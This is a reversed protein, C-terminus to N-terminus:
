TAFVSGHRNQVFSGERTWYGNLYSVLNNIHRLRIPASCRFRRHQRRTGPRHPNHILNPLGQIETRLSVVNKRTNILTVCTSAMERPGQFPPLVFFLLYACAARQSLDEGLRWGTKPINATCGARFQEGGVICTDPVACRSVFADLEFEVM